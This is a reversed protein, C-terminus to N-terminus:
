GQVRSVAKWQATRAPVRKAGKKAAKMLDTTEATVAAKMAVWMGATSMVARRVALAEAMM